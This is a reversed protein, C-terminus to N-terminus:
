CPAPPPIPAAARRARADHPAPTDACVAGMGRRTTCSCLRGTLRPTNILSTCGANGASIRAQLRAVDEDVEAADWDVADVSQVTVQCAIADALAIGTRIRCRPAGRRTITNRGIRSSVPSCRCQTPTHRLALPPIAAVSVVVLVAGVSLIVTPDM